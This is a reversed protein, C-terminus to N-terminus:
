EMTVVVKGKARGKELYAFAEAIKAFSFVEDVVVELKKAEVLSALLELDRGSPRMLMYRYAVGARWARFRVGASALWFLFALAAGRRLDKTAATPEPIGAISVVKGGRHVVSFARALTDGGVLDFAADYDRLEKAFDRTTYDVVIDAGLREVLARGRPSATTAVTAGFHKAIQLAFTGVGGAAGPIFLRMGPAVALEDRLAQLATLAALPVAAAHAFDLSAPKRAVLDEHVCATEAFAGLRDRAVRAFVEDGPRARTVREGVATVVGSLECGFVIPLTYRNVLRLKGERIKFDVPNLGAAKVDIRVEGPRPEPAPVDRLEAAGPGGYRTLVLARM